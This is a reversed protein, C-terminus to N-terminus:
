KLLFHRFELRIATGYFGYKRRIENELFRRYSFHILDPKNVFFTFTPPSQATQIGKSIIIKQGSRSPPHSLVITESFINFEADSIKKLREAAINKALELIKFINKKKLASVFLVPAWPMYNMRYQMRALLKERGTQFDEILDSKNVVIILGTGSDLIYQSVHLDQNAVGEAADLVLCTVDARSIAQLCRLVSYKEIGKRVKGRRRLGATDVLVFDSDELHLTTDTSDITTGPIESVLVRKQGLLANVLSSKGVNPKGVIAVRISKWRKKGASAKAFAPMKKLVKQVANEVDSIGFNHISSVAIPEGLGLKYLEPLYTLTKQNDAKHAILIISKRSKRLYQACDLDSATLPATADILFFIINAESVAIQAQAQVDAELDKKIDFEMGATDVLIVPYGGLEAEHYIRDRTTGAVPSTIAYRKGILRNFFTSKGVNPRGIIAIIHFYM